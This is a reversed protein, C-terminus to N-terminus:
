LDVGADAPRLRLECALFTTSGTSIEPALRRAKWVHRRTDHCCQPIPSRRVVRLSPSRIVSMWSPKRRCPRTRGRSSRMRALTHAPQAPAEAEVRPRLPHRGPMAGNRTGDSAANLAVGLATVEAERGVLPVLQSPVGRRGKRQRDDATPDGRTRPPVAAPPETVNPVRVM